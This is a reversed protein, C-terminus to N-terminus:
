SYNYINAIGHISGYGAGASGYTSFYFYRKGAGANGPYISTIQGIEDIAFETIGEYKLETSYKIGLRYLPRILKITLQVKGPCAVSDELLSPNIDLRYNNYSYDRETGTLTSNHSLAITSNFWQGDAKVAILSTFLVILISSFFVSFNLIKNM